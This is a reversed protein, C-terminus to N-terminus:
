AEVGPWSAGADIAQVAEVTEAADVAGELEWKRAYILPGRGKAELRLTNLQDLTLRHYANDYDRFTVPASLVGSSVLDILGEIDGISRRTADARFGLSSEVFGNAEAAAFASKIDAIKVAKADALRQAEEEPTHTVSELVWTQYWKGERQEPTGEILHHTWSDYEPYPDPTIIAYNFSALIEDTLVSPFSINKHKSRFLQESIISLTSTNILM